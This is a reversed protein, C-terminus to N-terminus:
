FALNLGVKFAVNHAVKTDLGFESVDGLDFKTVYDKVQGRIGISRNLQLDLGGGFNGAFTTASTEVPGFRVDYRIAGAGAEVFPVLGVGLSGATPFRFQLGADYFLIKSDAVSVDPLFPINVRVNSDTYGLNGVLAFNRSLDLGLEVGFMPSSENSIRTGIPGSVYDGFTIYGVYPTIRAVTPTSNRQAHASTAVTLISATGVLAARITRIRPIFM